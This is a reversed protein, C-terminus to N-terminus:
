GAPNMVRGIFLIASTDDDRIVFLFPSDINLLTPRPGGERKMLVETAAVAETGEEDVIIKAQHLVDSIFLERAGTMGSFDAQRASFSDPMGMDSLTQAISIDTGFEFKPMRLIVEETAASNDFGNLLALSLSDEIVHFFGPRPHLILMSASGEPSYPLEIASYKENSLYRFKGKTEMFPISVSEGGTLSFAADATASKVFEYVWSAKFYVANVLALDIYRVNVPELADTIKGNTNESIWKNIISAAEEPKSFDVYSIMADYNSQVVDLYSDLLNLGHNAWLSNALYLQFPRKGNETKGIDGSILALELKNLALHTIDQGSDFHLVDAMQEETDGRAGAYTMGLATTISHPSFLINGDEDNLQQFLDFGFQSNGTIVNKYDPLAVDPSRDRMGTDLLNEIGNVSMSQACSVCFLILLFSSPVAIGRVYKFVDFRLNKHNM